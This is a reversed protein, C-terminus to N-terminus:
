PSGFGLAAPTSATSRHAASCIRPSPPAQSKQLKTCNSDSTGLWAQHLKTNAQLWLPQPEIKVPDSVSTNVVMAAVLRRYEVVLYIVLINCCLKADRVAFLLVEASLADVLAGQTRLKQLFFM